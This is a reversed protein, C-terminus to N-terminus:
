KGVVNDDEESTKGKSGIVNDDPGDYYDNRADETLKARERSEAYVELDLSPLEANALLADVIDPQDALSIDAGNLNRLYSGLEKLDHPAVDGAVIKPMTKPDLTNLQWLPEVLQKNLVDVITQIYAELARLFLDTKSKSLAYSGTSGGGLMLFESLVSRAIDHQYRRIIPDIDINRNGSASMLEIDVLRTNSPAGDKDPYMDSPLIIYGQENFKTDRLVQQVGGLFSKQEASADAALYDAPIRAVPIGALEREVAIAEITQLNNLYTYSTYANRLISRGSPDNNIVTTRYYLSKKTPIYHKGDSYAQGTDQYMGLIDGTKQDVDFRSVTWPARSALKRVGIRGDPYKTKKKPNLSNTSERRKYVVEFWSFGFGLFSLAESIHDDLTHEMDELVQEVFNAETKAQDSDDAPKVKLDVDRLIQEVAYLVAGITADNDRMQQYTRIAKKGRLEPLFEDARIQGNHVNSGSVGLISKAKGETLNKDVM